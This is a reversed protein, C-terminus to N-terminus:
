WEEVNPKNGMIKRNNLKGESEKILRTRLRQTTGSAPHKQGGFGQRQQNQPPNGTEQKLEPPADPSGAWRGAPLHKESGMRFESKCYLAGKRIYFNDM